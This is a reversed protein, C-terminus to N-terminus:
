ALGHCRERFPCSCCVPESGSMWTKAIDGDDVLVWRESSRYYGQQSCVYDECVWDVFLVWKHNSFMLDGTLKWEKIRLQMEDNALQKPFNM